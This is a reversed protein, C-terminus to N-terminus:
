VDDWSQSYVYNNVYKTKVKKDYLDSLQNSRAIRAPTCLDSLINDYKYELPEDDLAFIKYITNKFCSWTNRFDIAFDVSSRGSIDKYRLYANHLRTGIKFMDEISWNIPLERQSFKREYHYYSVRNRNHEIANMADYIKREDDVCSLLKFIEGDNLRSYGKFLPYHRNIAYKPVPLTVFSPVGQRTTQLNYCMFGREVNKRLSDLQFADRGIGLGQSFSHKPPFNAAIFSPLKGGSNVYSAVYSAADRAIEINQETRRRFAFPWSEVIARRFTAEHGPEIFILLHIHPRFTEEGYEFTNYVKFKGHYDFNRVLNIRLRKNFDQVDKFICVGIKNGHTKRLYPLWNVNYDYLVNEQTVIEHQKFKRKYRHTVPDVRWVSDRYVPLPDLQNLVDDHKVYPCSFRDYTLTVFLAINDNNLENKLRTARKNAKEQLCAKCHGCSVLIKSGTWKNIIWRVNTCM